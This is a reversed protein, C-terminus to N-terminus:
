QVRGIERRDLRAEEVHFVSKSLSARMLAAMPVEIKAGSEDLFQVGSSSNGLVTTTGVQQWEAPAAVAVARGNPLKYVRIVEWQTQDARSLMPMALAALSLAFVIRRVM